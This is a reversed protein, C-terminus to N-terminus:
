LFFFPCYLLHIWEITRVMSWHNVAGRCQVQVLEDRRFSSYNTNSSNLFDVKAVGYALNCTPAIGLKMTLFVVSIFHKFLFLMNLTSLIQTSYSILSCIAPCNLVLNVM